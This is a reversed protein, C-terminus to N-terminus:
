LLSDLMKEVARTTNEASFEKGRIESQKKYYELLGPETLIRLIGYYLSNEDDETIIGFENNAGLLEKAGSVNTSVVPVGLILAETVATSFGEVHSSCVFLDANVVFKYPNDSFGLLKCTKETGTERILRKLKEREAGEGVIFLQNVVGIELLRKHIKILSDYGKTCCDLKGVSIINFSGNKRTVETQLSKSQSVIYSSDNVNYLVQNCYESDFINNFDDKVKQSVAIVEDFKSYCEKAESYSRFGIAAIEENLFDTHIWAVKKGAYASLIRATLGELYSVVIDYDGNILMKCLLQPSFLNMLKVNGPFVRKCGGIYNVQGNLYKRNHGIDFLTQITVNYKNKDLYNALNVLVKEAGGYHLDHILFLVKKM